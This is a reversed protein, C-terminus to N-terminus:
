YNDLWRITKQQFKDINLACNGTHSHNILMALQKALEQNNYENLHNPRTDEILVLETAGLENLSLAALDTTVNLGSLLYSSDISWRFSHLHVLQKNSYMKSIENFWQQQAWQLFEPDHIYKYYLNISRDVETVPEASHNIRGLTKNSSPIRDSNTHVFVIIDSSDIIKTDLRTLWNRADWWSQGAGDTYCILKRDVLEALKTPWHSESSCFSDGVVIINNM